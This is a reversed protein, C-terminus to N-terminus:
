QKSYRIRTPEIYERKIFSLIEAILNEAMIEMDEFTNDKRSNLNTTVIFSSCDHYYVYYM